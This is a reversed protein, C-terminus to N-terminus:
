QDYFDFGKLSSLGLRERNGSLVSSKALSRPAPQAAEVSRWAGPNEVMFRVLRQRLHEEFMTLQMRKQVDLLMKRGPEDLSELYARKLDRYKEPYSTRIKQLEDCATRRMRAALAGSLAAKAKASDELAAAGDETTQGDGRPPSNKHLSNPSTPATTARGGQVSDDRGDRSFLRRGYERFEAGDQTVEAAITAWPLENLIKVWECNAVFFESFRAFRELLPARNNQAIRVAESARLEEPLPLGSAAESRLCFEAFLLPMLFVRSSQLSDTTEAPLDDACIKPWGDCWEAVQFSNLERGNMLHFVRSLPGSVPSYDRLLRQGLKRRYDPMPDALMREPAMQWVLTFDLQTPDSKNGLALYQEGTPAALFGHDSLRKGLKALTKLQRVLDNEAGKSDALKLGACLEQLSVGFTGDLTLWSFNWQMARELRMLLLQEMGQLEHWISRWMALPPKGNFAQKIDPEGRAAALADRYADSLGFLIESGRDALELNIVMGHDQRRYWSESAFPKFVTLKGNEQGPEENSPALIALSALLQTVKEFAFRRTKVSTSNHKAHENPNVQLSECGSLMQDQLSGIIVALANLETVSMAPSLGAALAQRMASEDGVECLSVADYAYVWWSPLIFRTSLLNNDSLEM